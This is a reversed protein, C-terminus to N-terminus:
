KKFTSRAAATHGAATISATATYPGSSNTRFANTVPKSHGPAVTTAISGGDGAQGWSVSLFGTLRVNQHGTNKIYGTVKVHQGSTYHVVQACDRVYYKTSGAQKWGSCHTTAPAAGASAAVPIAGIAAAAAVTALTTKLAIHLM